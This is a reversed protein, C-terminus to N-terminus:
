SCIMLATEPLKKLHRTERIIDLIASHFEKKSLSLLFATQKKLEVIWQAAGPDQPDNILQSYFKEMESFKNTLGCITGKHYNGWLHASTFQWAIISERAIEPNSLDKRIQVAKDVALKCFHKIEDSFQREEEFAVFDVEQRYELDFSFYEQKYWHFNAGINLTTGKRGMFPQFEILITFWGQDDLWLRSQGKQTFGYPKFVKKAVRSIIKAHETNIM